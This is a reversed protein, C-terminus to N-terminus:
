PSEFVRIFSPTEGRLFFPILCNRPDGEQRIQLPYTKGDIEAEWEV